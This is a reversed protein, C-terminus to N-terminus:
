STIVETLVRTLRIKIRSYIHFFSSEIHHGAGNGVIAIQSTGQRFVVGFHHARDVIKHNFIQARSTTKERAHTHSARDVGKSKGFQVLVGCRRLDLRQDSRNKGTLIARHDGLRTARTNGVGTRSQSRETM